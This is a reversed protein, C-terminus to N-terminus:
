KGIGAPVPYGGCRGTSACYRDQLYARDGEYRQKATRYAEFHRGDPNSDAHETMMAKYFRNQSEPAYRSQGGVKETYLQTLSQQHTIMSQAFGNMVTQYYTSLGALCENIKNIRGIPDTVAAYDERCGPYGSAPFLPTTPMSPLPAADAVASVAAINATSVGAAPPATVAAAVPPAVVAPRPPITAPRVVAAAPPRVPPTATGSALQALRQQAQMVFLGGPFERMYSRYSEANDKESYYRWSIADSKADNAPAAVAATTGSAPQGAAPVLAFDRGDISMNTWPTQRGGTEETVDGRIVSGLRHISLGPEPLRNALSRAFPSNGGTGDSALQGAAAAFIILAGETESEALGRPASRTTGRWANGFPNERCADLVVMRLQAGILTELLGDLDIAEFRLDRSETLEADTPIVWNAGGSQIGHGAYYIMAVEAGDAQQRFEKLAQDFDNKGLNDLLTVEFGAAKASEAVLAADKEPNPLLTAHAYTSNGIILAARRAEAQSVWGLSIAACVLLVFRVM